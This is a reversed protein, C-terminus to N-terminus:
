LNTTEYLRKATDKKKQAFTLAHTNVDRVTLYVIAVLKIL